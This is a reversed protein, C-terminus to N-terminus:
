KERQTCIKLEHLVGVIVCWVWPIAVSFHSHTHIYIIHIISIPWCGRGFGMRTPTPHSSKLAGSFDWVGWSGAWRQASRSRGRLHFIQHVRRTGPFPPHTLGPIGHFGRFNGLESRTLWGLIYWFIFHHYIIRLGDPRKQRKSSNM